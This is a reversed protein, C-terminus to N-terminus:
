RIGNVQIDESGTVVERGIMDRSSRSPMSRAGAVLLLSIAAQIHAYDRLDAQCIIVEYLLQLLQVGLSYPALEQLPVITSLLAAQYIFILLVQPCFFFSEACGVAKSVIIM